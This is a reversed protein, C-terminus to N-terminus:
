QRARPRCCRAPAFRMLATMLGTKRDFLLTKAKAALSRTKQWEM